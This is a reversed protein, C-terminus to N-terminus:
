LAEKRDCWKCIADAPVEERKKLKAGARSLLSGRDCASRLYFTSTHGTFTTFTVWRHYVGGVTMKAYGTVQAM